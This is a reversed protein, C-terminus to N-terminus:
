YLNFFQELFALVYLIKIKKKFFVPFSEMSFYIKLYSVGAM